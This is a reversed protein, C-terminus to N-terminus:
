RFLGARTASMNRSRCYRASRRSTPIPSREKPARGRARSRGRPKAVDFVRVPRAINKLLVEGHDTFAIDLRDRVQEYAAQLAFHRGGGDVGEIRAALNVGDGM